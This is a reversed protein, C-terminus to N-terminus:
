THEESRAGVAFSGATHLSGSAAISYAFVQALDSNVVYLWNGSPTIAMSVPSAPTAFPSGAVEKLAGSGSDISYVSINTSVANAVFLFSGSSSMVMSSPSLGTNARPKVESLSGISSDINFLSITNDIQNAVYLFKGSPHVALPGPSNGAVYPSGVIPTFKGSDDTVRFAAVGNVTPLALYITHSSSAGCGALGLLLMAAFWLRGKSLMPDLRKRLIGTEGSALIM